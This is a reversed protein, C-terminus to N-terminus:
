RWRRAAGLSRPAASPGTRAGSDDCGGSRRAAPLPANAFVITPRWGASWVLPVDVCEVYCIRPRGGVGLKGGIEHALRQLREPSPLTDRLLRDFRVVRRATILVCLASGGIWLGFFVPRASSWFRTIWVTTGDDLAIRTWDAFLRQREELAAPQGRAATVLRIVSSSDQNTAAPTLM